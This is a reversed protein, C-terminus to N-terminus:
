LVVIFRLPVGKNMGVLIIKHGLDDIFYLKYEKCDLMAEHSELWDMGIVVDKSALTTSYLSVRTKCVGLDIECDKVLKGVGEKVRSAMEVQNFDEQETAM